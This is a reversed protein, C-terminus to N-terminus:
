ESDAGRGRSAGSCTGASPPSATRSPRTGAGPTSRGGGTSNTTGASPTPGGCRPTTGSGAGRTPRGTSASCRPPRAAPQARFDYWEDTRTWTDFHPYGGLHSVAPHDPRGIIMRAPQIQPHGQFRAGVLRGYWPWDFETDAASHVGLFAGGDRYWAEFAAQQEDNLVDGTTNLFVVADYNKLNAANFEAADETATVTFGDREALESFCAIGDPISGHRFGATKSFVLVRTRPIRSRCRYLGLADQSTPFNGEDSEGPIQNLTYWAETSWM